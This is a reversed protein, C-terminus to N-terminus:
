SEGENSNIESTEVLHQSVQKGRGSIMVVILIRERVM